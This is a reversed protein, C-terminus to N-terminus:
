SRSGVELDVRCLETRRRPLMLDTRRIPLLLTFTRRMPLMVIPKMM